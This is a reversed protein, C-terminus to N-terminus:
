LDREELGQRGVHDQRARRARRGRGLVGAVGRHGQRTRHQSGWIQRALALLRRRQGGRRSRRREDGSLETARRRRAAADLDTHATLVEDIQLGISLVPNLASMPEQFVVAIQGGRIKRLGEDAMTLLEAGRWRVRGTVAANAHLLKPIARLTVSKGSGSEGVIGLVEGAAVEFSVGDVAHIPGRPTTFVVHLGDVELLPANM